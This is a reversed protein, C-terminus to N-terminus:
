TRKCFPREGKWYVYRNYSGYACVLKGNGEAELAYGTRCGYSIVHGVRFSRAYGGTHWANALPPPASCYTALSVPLVCLVAAAVVLALSVGGDGSHM